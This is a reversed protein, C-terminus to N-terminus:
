LTAFMPDLQTIRKCRHVLFRMQFGAAYVAVVLLGVNFTGLLDYTSFSDFVAGFFRQRSIQYALCSPPSCSSRFSSIMKDIFQLVM